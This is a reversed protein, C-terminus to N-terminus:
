NVAQDLLPREICLGITRLRSRDVGLSAFLDAADESPVFIRAASRVASERPVAMEGHMYWIRPHGRLAGAVLPHDVVVVPKDRAWKRIDRGLIRIM